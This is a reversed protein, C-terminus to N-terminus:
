RASNMIEEYVLGCDPVFYICRQERAADLKLQEEAWTSTAERQSGKSMNSGAEAGINGPRTTVHKKTLRGQVWMNEEPNKNLLAFRTVRIWSESLSRDGDIKWYDDITAEHLVDISTKTQRQVDFYNLPIPFDDKRLM